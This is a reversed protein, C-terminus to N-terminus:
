STAKLSADQKQKLIYGIFIGAVKLTPATILYWLPERNSLVSYDIFGAAIILLILALIEIHGKTKTISATLLGAFLGFIFQLVTFGYGWAPSPLSAVGTLSLSHRFYLSTVAHSFGNLFSISIYGAAVALMSRIM